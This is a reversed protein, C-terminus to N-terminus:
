KGVWIGGRRGVLLNAMSVSDESDVDIVEGNFAEMACREAEVSYENGRALILVQKCVTDVDQDDCWRVRSL